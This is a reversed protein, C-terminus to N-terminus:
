HLCLESEYRGGVCYWNESVGAFHKNLGMTLQVGEKEHKCSQKHRCSPM